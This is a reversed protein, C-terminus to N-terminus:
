WRPASADHADSAGDSADDAASAGSILAAQAPSIPCAWRPGTKREAAKEALM